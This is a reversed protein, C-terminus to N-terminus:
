GIIKKWDMKLSKFDIWRKHSTQYSIRKVCKNFLIDPNYGEGYRDSSIDKQTHGLLQNIFHPEIGKQKLHDSVTHRFSHFNKKDTKLGLSTLYRSNFWRSVNQNYGGKKHKLEQFVRERKPDKKKLLEIFEILGLEILTNHIPIIRRSSLTKLNKDTRDPEEVIDFCWRKERHNGSIERINDNYLSTIEGLRLGTFVGILPTWYLEYRGKEINTFHIYNEKGFIKKLESESFRDREDRPRVTRKLKLGKFPNTNSYGHNISWEYFSSCWGLHKNITTISITDKVNMKVLEHFDKDRYLPNKNRNKPLNRINSKFNTTMERTVSGIPINGWEEIMLNLSHTVEGVSLIRISEKEGVYNEIGVSLLTSQHSTLHQEVQYPQSPEPIYNEIVPTLKEKLEPFLEVKLKDEVERRFDDDTRGTENILNITFEFRLLYLDIFYRRLQKYNVTQNDFEIKLSSIINKLKEDLMDEYTKLDQKLKQKMKDEKKSVSTLSEEIKESDYKNTELHVHHSHLISKRVEVKLIERVDELTLTNMGKRIDNFLQETLTKLYVSVLLTEKNSVNKLSIHFRTRGNFHRVLDQPIITRFLNSSNSKRKVLNSIKM